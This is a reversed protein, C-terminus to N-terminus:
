GKRLPASPHKTLFPISIRALSTVEAKNSSGLKKVPHCFLPLKLSFCNLNYVMHKEKKSFEKFILNATGKHQLRSILCYVCLNIFIYVNYHSSGVSLGLSSFYSKKRRRRKREKKEKEELTKGRMRMKRKRQSSHTGQIYETSM